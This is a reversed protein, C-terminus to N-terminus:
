DNEEGWRIPIQAVVLFGDNSEITLTGKIMGLREQMHTFGFGYKVESAGIGNDKIKITIISYNKELDIEIKTAKGHRISNTICEQIVRYIVDEEDENFKLRDIKNNFIIDVNSAKAMKEITDKIATLLDERDLVDPRLENVSRRVDTMGQRAVDGITELQKRTYEPSISLMAIAADLGAIIGTLTHGLTDHIERALRNRERTQALKESEKAYNELELNAKQLQENLIQVKENEDMQERLLLVTYIIFLIMNISTGLNKCVLLVSAVFDRYYSVCTEFSTIAMFKECLNFDFILLVAGISAMLALREKRDKLHSLLQAAVLLVIGNYNMQLATVVGIGLGVQISIDIWQPISVVSQLEMVLLLLLCGGIAFVPVAIPIPPMYKVSVLFSRAHMSKSIKDLSVYTVMAIFVVMTLNLVKILNFVTKRITSTSM